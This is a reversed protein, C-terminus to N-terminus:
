QASQTPVLACTCWDAGVCVCMTSVPLILCIQYACSYATLLENSLPWQQCAPRKYLKNLGLGVTTSLLRTTCCNYWLHTLRTERWSNSSFSSKLPRFFSSFTSLTFDNKLTILAVRQSRSIEVWVVISCVSNIGWVCMVWGWTCIFLLSLIVSSRRGKRSSPFTTPVSAFFQCFWWQQCFYLRRPVSLWGSRYPRCASERTLSQLQSIHSILTAEIWRHIM